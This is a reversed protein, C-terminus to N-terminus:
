YIINQKPDTYRMTHLAGRGACGGSQQVLQHPVEQLLGADVGGEDGLMRLDTDPTDGRTRDAGWWAEPGTGTVRSSFKRAAGTILLM